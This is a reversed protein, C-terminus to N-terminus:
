YSAYQGSTATGAEPRPPVQRQDPPTGAEPRPTGAEPGPPHHIGAHLPASVGRYVSHSVSLHLFM